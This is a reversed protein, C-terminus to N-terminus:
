GHLVISKSSRGYNKMLLIKLEERKDGNFCYENVSKEFLNTALKQKFLTHMDRTLEMGKMVTICKRGNTNIKYLHIIDDFKEDLENTLDYNIM